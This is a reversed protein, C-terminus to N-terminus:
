RKWLPPTTLIREVSWGYRLRAIITQYKLGTKLSWDRICLAEGQFTLLHNTRKNRSQEKMTAWYCNNLAYPGDNDRREITHHPSPRPGMDTLFTHFSARWQECMIIGRGGYNKYQTNKRNYCRSKMSKWVRYEPKRTMAMAYFCAPSCFKGRGQLLWSPFVLFIRHCDPNQCLVTIRRDHRATNICKRSCYKGEGKKLRSPRIYFSKGCHPNNCFAQPM